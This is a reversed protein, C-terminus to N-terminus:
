FFILDGFRLQQKSIKTGIKAQRETTRPLTFGLKSRFTVYIFDSCDIGNKGRGGSQYRTGRWQSYQAMLRQKVLSSNTMKVTHNLKHVIIKESPPSYLASCGTLSLISVILLHFKM